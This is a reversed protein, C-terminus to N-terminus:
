PFISGFDREQSAEPQDRGAALFDDSVGRQLAMKLSAWPAREGVHPRLILTDGEQTVEVQDVDFRFAKPLRVAQSNGSKFVRALHPMHPETPRTYLFTYVNDGGTM